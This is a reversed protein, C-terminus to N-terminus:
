CQTLRIPQSRGKIWRMSGVHHVPIHCAASIGLRSGASGVRADTALDTVDAPNEPHYRAFNEEPRQREAEVQEYIRTRNVTPRPWFFYWGAASLLVLVALLLLIRGNWFRALV